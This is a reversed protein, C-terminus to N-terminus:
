NTKRNTNLRIVFLVVLLNIASILLVVSFNSLVGLLVKSFFIEAVGFILLFGILTMLAMLNM